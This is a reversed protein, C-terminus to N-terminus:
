RKGRYAEGRPAINFVNRFGDEEFFLIRYNGIRLRSIGHRGKLLKIDGSPTDSALGELGALVRGLLPENLRDLQKQAKHSLIVEM